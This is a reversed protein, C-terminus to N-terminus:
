DTCFEGISAQLLAAESRWGDIRETIATIPGVGLDPNAYRQEFVAWREVIEGDTAAIAGLALALAGKTRVTTEFAAEGGELARTTTPWGSARDAM